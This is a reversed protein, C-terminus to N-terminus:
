WGVAPETGLSLLRCAAQGQELGVPAVLSPVSQHTM